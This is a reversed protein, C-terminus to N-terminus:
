DPLQTIPKQHIEQVANIFVATQVLCINFNSKINKRGHMM